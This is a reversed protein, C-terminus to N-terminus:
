VYTGTFFRKALSWPIVYYLTLIVFNFFSVCATPHLPLQTIGFFVNKKKLSPMNGYLYMASDLITYM